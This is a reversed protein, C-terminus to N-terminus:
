ASASRHGEVAAVDATASVLQDSIRLLAVGAVSGAGFAPTLVRDGGLIRGDAMADWLAIPISAASINGVHAVNFYLREEPIGAALALERVMPENAQHPVILDIGDLMTGRSSRSESLDSLIRSLYREVIARARPGDVTLHGSFAPNPWAVAHVQDSPGGAYTEVLEVDGDGNLGPALLLAAAGDGFLMRSSRVTGVKDSLKEGLVLLISGRTHEVLRAAHALGYPFGACAAAVDFVGALPDLTLRDAIRAALSPIPQSNTVSCAVVAAIDGAHEPVQDLVRVAADVILDDLSHESYRRERIGTRDYIESANIPSWNWASNAIVDENSACIEGKVAALGCIAVGHTPSFRLRPRGTRPVGPRRRTEAAADSPPTSELLRAVEDSRPWALLVFDGADLRAVPTPEPRGWRGAHERAIVGAQRLLATLEPVRDCTSLIESRQCLRDLPRASPVRLACAAPDTRAAELRHLDVKLAAADYTLSALPAELLALIRRETGGPWGAPLRGFAESIVQALDTIETRAVLPIRVDPDGDPMDQWRCPRLRYVTLFYRQTWYLHRLADRLLEFRSSYGDSASRTHLEPPMPAKSAFDRQMATEVEALTSVATLDLAPFFCVPFALFQPDQASRPTM